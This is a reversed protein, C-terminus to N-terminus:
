HLLVKMPRPTCSLTHSLRQSSRGGWICVMFIEGELNVELSPVSSVESEGFASKKGVWQSPFRRRWDLQTWSEQALCSSRSMAFCSLPGPLMAVSVAQLSSSLVQVLHKWVRFDLYCCNCSTHSQLVARVRYVSPRSSVAVMLVGVASLRWPLVVRHDERHRDIKCYILKRM